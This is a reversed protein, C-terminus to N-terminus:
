RGVHRTAHVVERSTGGDEGLRNEALSSLLHQVVVTTTHTHHLHAVAARGILLDDLLSLSVEALDKGDGLVVLDEEVLTSGSVLERGDGHVKKAVLLLSVVDDGAGPGLLSGLLGLAVPSDVVDRVGGLTTNSLLALPLGEAGISSIDVVAVVLGDLTDLEGLRGFNRRADRKDSIHGAVEQALLEVDALVTNYIGAALLVVARSTKGDHDDALVEELDRRLGEAGSDHHVLGLSVVAAHVVGRSGVVDVDSTKDELPDELLAADLSDLSDVALLSGDEVVVDSLGLVVSVGDDRLVARLHVNREEAGLSEVSLVEKSLSLLDTKDSESTVARNTSEASRDVVGHRNLTNLLEDLEHLVVSSGV